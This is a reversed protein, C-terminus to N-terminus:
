QSLYYNIIENKDVAGESCDAEAITRLEDVCVAQMTVNGDQSSICIGHESFVDYLARSAAKAAKKKAEEIKEDATPEAKIKGSIKWFKIAIPILPRVWKNADVGMANANTVGYRDTSTTEYDKFKWVWGAFVHGKGLYIDDWANIIESTGKGFRYVGDEIPLSIIEAETHEEQWAHGEWLRYVGGPQLNKAGKRYKAWSGNRHMMKFPVYGLVKGFAIKQVEKPWGSFCRLEKNQFWEKLTKGDIITDKNYRTM